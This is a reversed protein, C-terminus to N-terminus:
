LTPLLTGLTPVIQQFVAISTLELLVHLQHSGSSIYHCHSASSLQVPLINVILM